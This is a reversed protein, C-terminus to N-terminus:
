LRGERCACRADGHGGPAHRLAEHRGRALHLHRQPAKEAPHAEPPDNNAMNDYLLSSRTNGGAEGDGQGSNAAFLPMAEDISKRFRPDRLVFEVDEYSTVLWAKLGPPLYAMGTQLVIETPKNGEEKISRYVPYPDAYFTDDLQVPCERPM